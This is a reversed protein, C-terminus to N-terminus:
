GDAVSLSAEGVTEAGHRRPSGRGIMSRWAFSAALCSGVALVGHVVKFGVSWDGTVILSMRATWYLVTGASFARVLKSFVPSGSAGRAQMVVIAAAAIVFLTIPTSWLVKEGTSDEGNTWALPIRTTWIALTLVAFMTVAAPRFRETTVVAEVTGASWPRTGATLM